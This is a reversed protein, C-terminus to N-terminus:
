QSKGIYINYIYIYVTTHTNHTISGLKLFCRELRWEDRCVRNESSHTQASFICFPFKGELACSTSLRYNTTLFSNNRTVCVCLCVKPDSWYHEIFGPSLNSRRIRIKEPQYQSKKGSKLHKWDMKVSFFTRLESCFISTWPQWM